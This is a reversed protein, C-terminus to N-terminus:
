SADYYLCYFQCCGFCRKIFNNGLAPVMSPSQSSHALSTVRSMSVLTKRRLFLVYQGNPGMPESKPLRVVLSPAGPSGWFQNCGTPFHQIAQKHFMQFVHTQFNSLFKSVSCLCFGVTLFSSFLFLPSPLQLLLQRHHCFPSCFGFPILPHLLSPFCAFSLGMHLNIWSPSAQEVWYHSHVQETGNHTRHSPFLM